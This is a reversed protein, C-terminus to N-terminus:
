QGLDIGVERGEKHLGNKKIDYTIPMQDTKENAITEWNRLCSLILLQQIARNLQTENKSAQQLKAIIRYIVKGAETSPYDTLIALIIEEPIESDLAGTSLERISRLEFGIIQM